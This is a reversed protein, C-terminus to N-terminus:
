ANFFFSLTEMSPPLAGLKSLSSYDNGAVIIHDILTIGMTLASMAIRRTLIVDEKSPTPDGSPHNHGLIIEDAHIQLATSLIQRPDAIAMRNSGSSIRRHLLLRKSLNLYLVHMEEYILGTLVPKFISFAVEPTNVMPNSISSHTLCRGLQIAAKLREIRTMTMEEVNLLEHPDANAIGAISGFRCLLNRAVLRFKESDQDLVKALLRQHHEINALCSIDVHQNM